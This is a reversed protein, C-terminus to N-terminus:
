RKVTGDAHAGLVNIAPDSEIATFMRKVATVQGVEVGETSDKMFLIKVTAFCIKLDEIMVSYEGDFGIDTRFDSTSQVYGSAGNDTRIFCSKRQCIVSRYVTNGEAKIFRNQGGLMQRVSTKGNFCIM